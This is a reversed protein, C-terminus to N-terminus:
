PATARCCRFGNQAAIVNVAARTLRFDCTAGLEPTDYAGGRLVAIDVGGSTQGTIDDTWEKLNGSLDKVGPQSVCAAVTGTALLVDDDAGGAVGDYRETNCAMPDFTNGYPYTTNATGECAAQWQTRTCLVKGAAACAAQAVNFSASQWPLVGPNSCARTQLVGSAAASADPRSAEFTDMWFDLGGVQVHTMSDIVRDTGTTNDVIGDCNNDKGDCAEAAPMQGPVTITCVAAGNLDQPNCQYSGTGRCAGQNGDDCAQGLNPQSEDTNADCDNNKGDCLTEPFQVVGPYTCSWGAAGNCQAVPATAGCEGGARCIAPATLSEDITGDCDNDVGDCTEAGSSFCHYECGNTDDGDLNQFGANCAFSCAGTACRPQSNIACTGGPCQADMTCSAGDTMNTTDICTKGTPMCANGCTGCNQVDTQKFYIEDIKTDCDDDLDNCTEFKPFVAGTCLQAGGVCTFTGMQCEGDDTTPGCSSPNFVVSEDFNGDCDNDKADCLEPDMTHDVFGMCQLTGTTADCRMQGAVCEGQDTGCKAGGGPDGEDTTGNCNDDIANCTEATPNKDCKIMGGVCTTLGGACAGQQNSCPLGVAAITGDDILGNCDNDKNDCEEAGTPICGADVIDGDDGGGDNADDTGIGGDDVACNLCYNNISCSVQTALVVLASLVLLTRMAARM